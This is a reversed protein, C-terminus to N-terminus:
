QGVAKRRSMMAHRRRVVPLLNVAFLAVAAPGSRGKWKAPLRVGPRPILFDLAVVVSEHLTPDQALEPHLALVEDCLPRWLKPMAPADARMLWARQVKHAFHTQTNM